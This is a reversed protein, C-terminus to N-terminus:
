RMRWKSHRDKGSRKRAGNGNRWIITRGQLGRQAALQDIQEVFKPPLPITVEDQSM